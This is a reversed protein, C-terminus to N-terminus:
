LSSPSCSCLALVSPFPYNDDSSFELRRKVLAVVKGATLAAAHRRERDAIWELLCARRVLLRGGAEFAPLEEAIGAFQAASLQLLDGVEEFTM